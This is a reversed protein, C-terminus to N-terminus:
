ASRWALYIGIIILLIFTIMPLYDRLVKWYKRIRGM